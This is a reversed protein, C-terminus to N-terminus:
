GGVDGGAAVVGSRDLPDSGPLTDPGQTVAEPEGGAALRAELEDPRLGRSLLGRHALSIQGTEESVVVVLADTEESLGLAARHRTGLTRDLGPSM